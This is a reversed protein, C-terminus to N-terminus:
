HAAPTACTTASRLYAIVKWIDDDGNPLAGKWPPMRTNPVGNSITDFIQQDSGGHKWECDFLSPADREVDHTSHCYAGCTGVFIMHGREVAAPDRLYKQALSEQPQSARSCALALLALALAARSM